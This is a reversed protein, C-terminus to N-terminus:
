NSIRPLWLLPVIEGTKRPVRSGVEFYRLSKEKDKRCSAILIITLAAVFILGAKM